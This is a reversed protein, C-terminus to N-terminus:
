LNQIVIKITKEQSVPHKVHGQYLVTTRFYYSPSPFIIYTMNETFNLLEGINCVILETESHM